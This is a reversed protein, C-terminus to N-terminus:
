RRVPRCRESRVSLVAHLDRLHRLSHDGPSVMPIRAELLAVLEEVVEAGTVVEGQETADVLRLVARM